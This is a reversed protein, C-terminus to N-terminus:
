DSLFVCKPNKTLPLCPDLCHLSMSTEPHATALHIHLRSCFKQDATRVGTLMAAAAGGGAEVPWSEFRRGLLEAALRTEMRGPNSTVSSHRGM